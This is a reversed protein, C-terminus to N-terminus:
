DELAKIFIYNQGTVLDACDENDPRNCGFGKKDGYECKDCGYDIPNNGYKIKKLKSVKDM